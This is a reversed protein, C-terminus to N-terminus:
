LESTHRRIWLLGLVGLGIVGFLALDLASAQSQREADTAVVTEPDTLPTVQADGDSAGHAAGALAALLLATATYTKVKLPQDRM